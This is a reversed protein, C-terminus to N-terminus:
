FGDGEPQQDPLIWILDGGCDPCRKAMIQEAHYRDVYMILGCNECFLGIRRSKDYEPYRVTM